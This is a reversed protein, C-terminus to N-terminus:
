RATGVGQRATGLVQSPTGPVQPRTRLVRSTFGPSRRCEREVARTKTDGAALVQPAKTSSLKALAICIASAVVRWLIRAQSATKLSLHGGIVAVRLRKAIPNAKRGRLLPDRNAFQVLAPT